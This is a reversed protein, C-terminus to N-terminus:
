HDIYHTLHHHNVLDKGAFLLRAKRKTFLTREQSVTRDTLLKGDEDRYTLKGVGAYSQKEFRKVLDRFALLVKPVFRRPIASLGQVLM